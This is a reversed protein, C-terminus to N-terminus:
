WFERSPTQIGKKALESSVTKLYSLYSKKDVIEHRQLVLARYGQSDLTSEALEEIRLRHKVLTGVYRQSMSQAIGVYTGLICIILVLGPYRGRGIGASRLFMILISTGSFVAAFLITTAGNIRAALETGGGRAYIADKLSDIGLTTLSLAAFWLGGIMPKLLDWVASSLVGLAIVGLIKWLKKRTENNMSSPLFPETM